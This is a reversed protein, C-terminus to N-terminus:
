RHYIRMTRRLKGGSLFPQLIGGASTTMTFDVNEYRTWPLVYSVPLSGWLPPPDTPSPTIQNVQAALKDELKRAKNTGRTYDAANSYAKGPSLRTIDRLANKYLAKRRTEPNDHFHTNAVTESLCDDNPYCPKYVTNKYPVYVSQGKILELNLAHLETLYHQFEHRAVCYTLLRIAEPISCGLRRKNRAIFNVMAREFFVVGWEGDPYYHFPRYVALLEVGVRSTGRGYLKREEKAEESDKEFAEPEDCEEPHPWAERTDESHDFEEEISGLARAQSADTDEEQKWQDSSRLPQIPQVPLPAPDSPPDSVPHLARPRFLSAHSKRLQSLTTEIRGSM